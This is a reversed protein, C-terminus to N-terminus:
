VRDERPWFRLVVALRKMRQDQEWVDKPYPWKEIVDCLAQRAVAPANQRWLREGPDRSLYALPHLDFRTKSRHRIKHIRELKGVDLGARCVKSRHGFAGTAFGTHDAKACAPVVRELSRLGPNGTSNHREVAHESRWSSPITGAVVSREVAFWRPGRGQRPETREIGPDGESVDFGKSRGPTPRVASNHDFPGIVAENVIGVSRGMPGFIRHHAPLFTEAPKSIRHFLRRSSLTAHV